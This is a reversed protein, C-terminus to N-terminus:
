VFISKVRKLDLHIVNPKRLCPLSITNKLSQTNFLSKSKLAFRIKEQCELEFILISWIKPYFGQSVLHYGSNSNQGGIYPPLNLVGSYPAEVDCTLRQKSVGIILCLEKIEVSLVSYLVLRAPPTEPVFSVIELM